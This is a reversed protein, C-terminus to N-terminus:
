SRYIAKFLRMVQEPSMGRLLEYLEDAGATAQEEALAQPNKTIATQLQGAQTTQRPDSDLVIKKDDLKQNFEAVEDLYEDPDYGRERIMEPLSQVGARVNRMAALGEKDPEIMPTAPPTWRVSSPAQFGMIGAAQMAWSWVPDCFQPILMRWRWDDVRAYFRLRSMRAASFPLNTYDGTLDEYTVGLGAAIARLSVSSYSPYDAASPPQVTQITQGAPLGILAGPSLTDTPPTATDDTAGLGPNAGDQDTYVVALCAAIKQKMLTADEFEDFDKFRLLTPALWSVDRVQGPRRMLFVHLIESAPIRHSQGFVTAMTSTISGPHTRFLWYAVRQGLADFEVGQIIQGGNPLPMTRPTDLFDAELVQLQLPLEGPVPQARFRRRILVEGSEAVSRLVLKQLGYFDHRSDWDCAPTEAWQRWLQLVAENAPQPKAVIGTGVAHNSIIGLAAEAHGNNRVLDRAIDRLRQLSTWNALNADTSQRSWNQTRRGPMAAEYHRLLLETGRRALLRRLQWRPAVTGIARDLFTQPAAM